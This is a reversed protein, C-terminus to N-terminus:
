EEEAERQVVRWRGPKPEYIDGARALDSLAWLIQNTYLGALANQLAPHPDQTELNKWLYPIDMKTMIKVANLVRILADQKDATANAETKKPPNEQQPIIIHTQTNEKLEQVWFWWLGM